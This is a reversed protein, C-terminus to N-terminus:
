HYWHFGIIKFFIMIERDDYILDRLTVDNIRKVDINSTDLVSDQRRGNYMSLTQGEIVSKKNTEFISSKNSEIISGNNSEISVSNKNSEISVSNKNSELSGKRDGKLLSNKVYVVDDSTREDKTLPVNM